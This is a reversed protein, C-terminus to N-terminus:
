TLPHGLDKLDIVEGTQLSMAVYNGIHSRGIIRLRQKHRDALRAGRMANSVSVWAASWDASRQLISPIEACFEIAGSVLEWEPSQRSHRPLEEELLQV